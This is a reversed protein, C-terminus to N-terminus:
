NLNVLEGNKNLQLIKVSTPIVINEGKNLMDKIKQSFRNIFDANDTDLLFIMPKIKHKHKM